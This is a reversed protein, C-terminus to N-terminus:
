FKKYISFNRQKSSNVIFSFKIKDAEGEGGLKMVVIKIGPPPVYLFM